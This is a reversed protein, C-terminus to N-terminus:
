KRLTIIANCIISIGQLTLTLCFVWIFTKLIFVGPMGHYERSSELLRWSNIILDSAFYAIACTVPLLFLITGMLNVLAKTKDSFHQYFVDVRVHENELLTFGAASLFVIAHLFRVLELQWILTTSFLYRMAVSLCMIIVMALTFWAIIHGLKSNFNDIQNAAKQLRDM